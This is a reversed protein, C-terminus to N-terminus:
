SLTSFAVVGDTETISLGGNNWREREQQTIHIDANNIHEVIADVDSVTVGAVPLDAIYAKGDGIRMAPHAVGESDTYYDSYVYIHGKESVTKTDTESWESVTKQTLGIAGAAGGGVEVAIGSDLVVTEPREVALETDKTSEVELSVDNM